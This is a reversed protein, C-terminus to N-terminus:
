IAITGLIIKATRGGLVFIIEATHLAISLLCGRFYIKYM